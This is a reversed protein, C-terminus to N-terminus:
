ASERTVSPVTVLVYPRGTSRTARTAPATTHASAQVVARAPQLLWVTAGTPRGAATAAPLGVVGAAPPAAAPTVPLVPPVTPPLADPVGDAGAAVVGAPPARVGTAPPDPVGRVVDAVTTRTEVVPRRVVVARRVEDDVEPLRM